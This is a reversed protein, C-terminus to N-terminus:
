TKENKKLFPAYIKDSCEACIGHTFDAETHDSIYEELQTWYGKDDRIKKCSSCIPLLGRLTKVNSLAQQLENFLKKREISYHISRSLLKGDIQGKVLYDQAGKHVANVAVSEDELGTLIIIPIAPKKEIVKELTSLGHSDPLSLDLLVVDEELDTPLNLAESLSKVDMIIFLTNARGKLMEKILRADSDSDEILLIHITNKDM